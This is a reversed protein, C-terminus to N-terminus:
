LAVVELLFLNGVQLEQYDQYEQHCVRILYELYDTLLPLSAQFPDLGKDTAWAFFLDWQSKYHAKTSLARLKEIMYVVRDSFGQDKMRHRRSVAATPAVSSSGAVASLQPLVEHM